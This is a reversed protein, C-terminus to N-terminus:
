DSALVQELMDAHRRLVPLFDQRLSAVSVRATSTSVSLAALVRRGNGRVPVAMSRMGLELEEDSIAYGQEGAAAIAAQIDTVGTLTRPTFPTFSQSDLIAAVQDASLAALLVRGTASCWLPLRASVRVGTSVIRRAEARAVFLACDSELVALSISEGIADRAAALMPRSAEVLQASGLYAGGLRVLRPLPRFLRGDHGLYGLEMLTLLCRRAASRTIGTLRAAEAVTLTPQSPGFAEIIALGKALGAMGEPARGAVEEGKVAEVVVSVM